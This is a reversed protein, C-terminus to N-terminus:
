DTALRSQLNPHFCSEHLLSAHHAWRIRHRVRQSSHTTARAIRMTPLLLQHPVSMRVQRATGLEQPGQKQALTQRSLLPAKHGHMAPASPLSPPVQSCLPSSPLTHTLHYHSLKTLSQRHSSPFSTLNDSVAVHMCQGRQHCKRSWLEVCGKWTISSCAARMVLKENPASASQLRSESTDMARRWVRTRGITRM